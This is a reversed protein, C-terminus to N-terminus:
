FIRSKDLFRDKTCNEKNTTTNRPAAKRKCPPTNVSNKRRRGQQIRESRPSLEM